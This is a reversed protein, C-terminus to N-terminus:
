ESKLDEVEDVSSLFKYGLDSDFGNEDLLKLIVKKGNIIKYYNGNEDINYRKRKSM